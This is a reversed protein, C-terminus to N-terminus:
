VSSTSERAETVPKAPLTAFTLYGTHGPMTILPIGTLFTTEEEEGEDKNGNNGKDQDYEELPRKRSFRDPDAGNKNPKVEKKDEDEEAKVVPVEKETGESAKKKSVRNLNYLPQTIKRVQFERILCELTTIETFGDTRM